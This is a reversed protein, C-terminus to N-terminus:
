AQIKGRRGEAAWIAGRRIMETVQPVRLDDRTHGISCFFIRGRDWRRTGVLPIVSGEIWWLHDGTFTMTALVENSPDVLMYYQESTLRFSGIGEVLPHWPKSITVDYDVFDDEPV